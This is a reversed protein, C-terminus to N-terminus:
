PTAEPPSTPKQTGRYEWLYALAGGADYSVLEYTHWGFFMVAHGDDAIVMRSGDRDPVRLARTALWQRTQGDLPGGVVPLGEDDSM